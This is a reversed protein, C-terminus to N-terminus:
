PKTEQRVPRLRAVGSMGPRVDSGPELLQASVKMTRSVPDVLAGLHLLRAAHSSGTEEVHFVFEHGPSLAVSASSPVILDLELPGDKVIRLLPANAQPIEFVDVIREVIRGDYPATIVCQRTRVRISEAAATAQALKAEALLLDNSGTARHRLLHRNTEVQIQHTMVEAEAARLDAEYRGCDFRLLVAGAMFSQGPKFPIDAIRAVLESSVTAAAEARTVGRVDIAQLELPRAPAPQALADPACRAVAMMALALAKLQMPRM